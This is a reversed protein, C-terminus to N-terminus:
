ISSVIKKKSDRFEKITEDFTALTTKIRTAEIERNM